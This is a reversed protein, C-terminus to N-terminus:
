GLLGKWHRNITRNAQKIWDEISLAERRTTGITFYDTDLTTLHEKPFVDTLRDRMEWPINVKVERDEVKLTATLGSTEGEHKVSMLVTAPKSGHIASSLFRDSVFPAAVKVANELSEFQHTRIERYGLRTFVAVGLNDSVSKLLANALEIARKDAEKGRITVRTVEFEVSARVDRSEFIQQNPVANQWKLEPFQSVVDTWTAGARDWIMLAPDYRAEFTVNEVKFDDFAIM